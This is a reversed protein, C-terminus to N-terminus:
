QTIEQYILRCWTEQIEEKIEEDTQFWCNDFGKRDTLDVLIRALILKSKEYCRNCIGSM